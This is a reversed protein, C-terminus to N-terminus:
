ESDDDDCPLWEGSSALYGVCWEPGYSGETTSARFARGKAVCAREADSKDEHRSVVDWDDEGTSVAYNNRFLVAYEGDDNTAPPDPEDVSPIDDEIGLADIAVKVADPIVDGGETDEEVLWTDANHREHSGVGYGGIACRTWTAVSEGNVTLTRNSVVWLPEDGGNLAEPEEDDIEIDINASEALLSRCLVVIAADNDGSDSAAILHRLGVALEDIDNM